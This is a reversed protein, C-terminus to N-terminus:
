DILRAMAGCLDLSAVLPSRDLNRCHREPADNSDSPVAAAARRDLAQSPNVSLPRM